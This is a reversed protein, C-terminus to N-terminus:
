RIRNRSNYKGESIKSIPDNFIWALGLLASIAIMSSQTCRLTVLEIQIINISSTPM